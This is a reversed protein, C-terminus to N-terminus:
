ASAWPIGTRYPETTCLSTLPRHGPDTCGPMHPLEDVPVTPAWARALEDDAHWGTHGPELSCNAVVRVGDHLGAGCETTM